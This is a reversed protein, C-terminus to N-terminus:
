GFRAPKFGRNILPTVANMILIAFSVGEPYSGWIRILMTIIGCGVGFIIMGKPSMPSTVMDTAMYFVGLIMGGAILHFFPTVYLSPNILHMIGSFVFASGLYAVPIHWTIIKRYFLYVAGILLAIASVEGISGGQNGLLDNVYSPLEPMLEQVTKGAQLGEKLIGLATPGTIADTIQPMFMPNAVPWSTMQVPFSLLLFVRGVLAPNFINKGIGGFAMKAIGISVFAGIIIIWVPLNSPVNFALLIGTIVASGDTITIDGKIIYKQILYEFLLCAAVSVVTLLLADLGFFYISVLFAPILAYIVGFMIKKVSQDSHVHPSGSIIITSM